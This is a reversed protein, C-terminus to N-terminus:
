GVDDGEKTFVPCNRCARFMQVMMPSSSNMAAAHDRWQLCDASSIWGLAPCSVQEACLVARVRNELATMSGRYKNNLAASVVGPTRGIRRAVQSQSSGEADCAVVLAEIWDPVEGWAQRAIQMRASM